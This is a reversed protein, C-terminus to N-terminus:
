LAGAGAGPEFVYACKGGCLVAICTELGNDCTGAGTGAYATFDLVGGRNAGAGCFIFVRYFYM